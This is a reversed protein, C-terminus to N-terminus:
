LPLAKILPLGELLAPDEFYFGKKIRLPQMGTIAVVWESYSLRGIADVELLPEKVIDTYAGKGKGIKKKREQKGLARSMMQCDTDVGSAGMLRTSVDLVATAKERGYIHEVQARYQIIFMFRCGYKRKDTTSDAITDIRGMNGFEDLYCTVMQHKDHQYLGDEIVKDMFKRYFLTLFPRMRENAIEDAPVTIFVVTKNCRIKKFDITQQSLTQLIRPSYLSSLHTQASVLINQKTEGEANELKNVCMKAAAHVHRAQLQSRKLVDKFLADLDTNLITEMIAEISLRQTDIGHCCYQYIILAKIIDRTNANFFKGGSDGGDRNVPSPVLTNVISDLDENLHDPTWRITLLPNWGDSDSEFPSWRLIHYGKAALKKHLLAYLEGSNDNVIMSGTDNLMNPVILGASKGAGTESIVTVVVKKVTVWFGNLKGLYFVPGTQNILKNKRAEPLTQFHAGGMKKPHMRLYFCLLGLAQMVLVVMAIVQGDHTSFNLWLLALPNATFPSFGAYLNLAIFSMWTLAISLIVYTAIKRALFHWRGARFIVGYLLSGLFGLIVFAFLLPTRWSQETDAFPSFRGVMAAAFMLSLWVFFVAGLLSYQGRPTFTFQLLRCKIVYYTKKVKSLGKTSM